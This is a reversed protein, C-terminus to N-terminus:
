DYSPIVMPPKPLEQIQQPISKSVWEVVPNIAPYMISKQWAHSSDIHLVEIIIVILSCIFIGRIAGFIFGLVMNLGGLGISKIISACLKKLITILIAIIIFAIIFVIVSRLLQNSVSEPIFKDIFESYYKMMAFALFWISLSLVESVAGRFMALIGSALTIGLFIVDYNSSLINM